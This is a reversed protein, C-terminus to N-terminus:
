KGTFYEFLKEFFGKNELNIIPKKPQMKENQSVFKIASEIVDQKGEEIISMENIFNFESGFSLLNENLVKSGNGIFYLNLNSKFVNNKILPCKLFLLEIIEELRANIVNKLLEDEKAINNKSFKIKKAEAKRYDINLIKSIDKTIHDGGVSINNLYLIKNDKFITLSSKKHGIDIFSSYGSINLREILGSSKIYSICFIEKLSIHKSFFLNKLTDCLKKNIMIFKLELTVKNVKSTINQFNEVEDDDFILKSNITHLIEKEKNNLKIINTSENILYKIDQLTIIKKDYNKQITYDLSHISSSDILLILDNLHMGSYKEADTILNFIKHSENLNDRTFDIKKEFYSGTNLILKNFIGLRAYTSGLELIPFLEDSNNM